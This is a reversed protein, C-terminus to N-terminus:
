RPNRDLGSLTVELPLQLVRRPDTPGIAVMKSGDASQHVVALNYRLMDFWRQGEFLFENRKFDLVTRILGEKLMPTHYFKMVSSATITHNAHKYNAIRTSAYDNLDRLADENNGLYVNAEARNFLLEETSLLPIMNYPDGDHANISTKVFHEHFKPVNLSIENGYLGFAWTGGTVNPAGITQKHIVFTYGYRYSAYSRGWLSAAGALLLNANTTAATYQAQRDYYQLSQYASSNIPRLYSAMSGASIAANAHEVVRTYDKKFLYFRSAFAHAAAITFHYKPVQYISNAILPLGQTLDKEIHGYVFAVTKRKYKKFVVKEPETVYPIGPDANATTPNYVKAFLTVLMFHAYARAVLAEGKQAKYRVSDSVSSIVQLAQNAAAIAAYCADWYANPSDIDQSNSDEFFYPNRNIPEIHTINKDAVNDSMAECFTIYSAKPYASVLLQQVKEASNLTTRDDPSQELFKKCSSAMLVVVIAITVMYNMKKMM